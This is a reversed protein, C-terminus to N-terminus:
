TLLNPFETDHYWCVGIGTQRGCSGVGHANRWKGERWASGRCVDIDLLPRRYTPEPRPPTQTCVRPRRREKSIHMSDNVNGLRNNIRDVVGMSISVSSIWERRSHNLLWWKLNPCRYNLSWTWLCNQYSIKLQELEKDPSSGPEPSFRPPARLAGGSFKLIYIYISYM